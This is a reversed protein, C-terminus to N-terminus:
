TQKPLKHHLFYMNESVNVIGKTKNPVVRFTTALMAGCVMEIYIVQNHLM